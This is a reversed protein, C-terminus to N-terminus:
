AVAERLARRGVATVIESEHLGTAAAWDRVSPEGLAPDGFFVAEDGRRVDLDDIDIMCVDMAVRGVIPRRVGSIVVDAAGGLSRVIGQAYGGTVLAIRTDRAARHRYGYSVGEGARLRKVVLATGSLRMAASRG